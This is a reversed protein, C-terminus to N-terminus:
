AMVNVRTGRVGDSPPPTASQIMALAQQGDQKTQSLQKAAVLVSAVDSAQLGNTGSVDM